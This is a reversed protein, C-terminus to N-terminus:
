KDGLSELASKVLVRISSSLTKNYSALILKKAELLDFGYKELIKCCKNLTNNDITPTNSKITEEHNTIKKSQKTHYEISIHKIRKPTFVLDCDCVIKFNKTTGEKLSIWHDLGCNPCRYKFHVDTDIPKLNKTKQKIM